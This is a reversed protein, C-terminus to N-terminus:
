QPFLRLLPLTKAFRLSQEKVQGPLLESYQPAPFLSSSYLTESVAEVDGDLGLTVLAVTVLVAAGEVVIDLLRSLVDLEVADFVDVEDVVEAEEDIVAGVM